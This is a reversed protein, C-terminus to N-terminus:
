AQMNVPQFNSQGCFPCDVQSFDTWRLANKLIEGNDFSPDEFDELICSWKSAFKKRNGEVLHTIRSNQDRGYSVGGVHIIRSENSVWVEYGAKRMKFALDTDEYYAPSYRDDFFETEKLAKNRILLGAGACFDVKRPFSFEIANPTSGHGFEHVSGDKWVIAGCEQLTGNPFHITSGVIGASQNSEMVNLSKFYFQDQVETDNNLLYLYKYSNLKGFALNCAKTFGLNSKTRMVQVLPYRELHIKTLDTSSDDIVFIDLYNADKTNFISRLCRETMHWNNHVPIILACENVINKVPKSDSNFNSAVTWPTINKPWSSAYPIRGEIYGHSIFHIIPNMEKEAVDSNERLYYTTSFQPSPDLGLKWGKSLFHLLPNEGARLLKSNASSYWDTDFFISPDYGLSYGFKWYHNLSKFNYKTSGLYTQAYWDPQFLIKIEVRFKFTM